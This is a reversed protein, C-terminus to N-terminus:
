PYHDPLDNEYLVVDGERAHTKVWYLARKRDPLKVVKEIRHGPLDIAELIGAELAERNTRGVIVLYDAVMGAAKAFAFNEAYQRNGLEVMGPTVLIRHAGPQGRRELANLARRAGKPNSNYTDDLIEIGSGPVVGAVLRNVPPKIETLRNEIHSQSVGLELAAAVACGLNTPAIDNSAVKALKQGGLYIVLEDEDNAKVAIDADLQHASVRIVKKEGANILMKAALALRPVDINIIVTSAPGVIELKARLIAAESRFRELHVPGLATIVAIDPPIWRCLEAIEGPGFTGMEAVFVETGPVLNENITRALGGRNNYSAPSAVTRYFGELLTATYYKTTTKGFSGTIAVVKPRVRRLTETATDVYRQMLRYEIPWAIRAALDAVAPAGLACLGATFIAAGFLSGVAIVILDVLGVLAVLRRMRATLALPSTKGRLKLGRPITLAVIDVILASLYRAFSPLHPAITLALATVGLIAFAISVISDRFWLKVFIWIRGPIYHERQVVRLWKIVAIQGV